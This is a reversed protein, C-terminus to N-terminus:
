IYSLTGESQGLPNMGHIYYGHLAEDFIIISINSVSCLDIFNEIPLPWWIRLAQRL